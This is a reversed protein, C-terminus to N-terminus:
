GDTPSTRAEYEGIMMEFRWRQEAWYRQDRSLEAAREDLDQRVRRLEEVAQEEARVAEALSVKAQEYEQETLKPLTGAYQQLELGLLKALASAENLRIPRKGQELRTIATQSLEIGSTASLHRGLAEQSWGRAERADRVQHGFHQEPARTETHTVPM